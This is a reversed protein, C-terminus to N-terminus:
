GRQETPAPGVGAHQRKTKHEQLLQNFRNLEFPKLMLADFGADIARARTVEDGYATLALMLCSSPGGPGARLRRAVEFGNMGPLGVDVLAVDPVERLILALGADGREACRVQHGASSILRSVAARVDANDEVLVVRLPQLSPAEDAPAAALSVSANGNLPLQVEFVTGKGIGDSRADVKGGHMTVLQKVLYLGLGLGGRARDIGAEVQTYPEFLHPLQEPPIGIGDDSVRLTAMGNEAHVQLGICGGPSTFKVANHLLNAVVQELRAADGHVVARHLDLSLEQNRSRCGEVFSHAATSAVQALDVEGLRLAMQGSNIRATDLLDDVLMTAQNVQRRLVQRAQLDTESTARPSELLSVSAAMASLPNRLEHALMAVFEDKAQNASEAQVRAAEAAALAEARAQLTERLLRRVDDAETIPLPQQVVQEREADSMPLLEALSSFAQTARRGLVVAMVVAALATILVGVAVLVAQRYAVAEVADAPVGTGLTWPVTQLRSFATYFRQGELGANVFSDETRARARELYDARSTKGVWQENNLTRAIIRGAGDNLTLTADEAIPYGRLFRLWQAHHIAVVVLRTVHGGQLAPVAIYTYHNAGDPSTVLGSIAPLGSGLAQAFTAKDIRDAEGAQASGLYAARRGDTEVISISSWMANHQLMRHLSDDLASPALAAQSSLADRQAFIKLLRISGQIETDLALRLARVRELYRQSHVERQAEYWGVIALAALLAVPAIVVLMLAALQSRIKV